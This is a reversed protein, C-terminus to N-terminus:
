RDAEERYFDTLAAAFIEPRETTLEHGCDPAVLLRADPLSRALQWAQDVPVFPDRDGCAVMAPVEIRRLDVPTLLPQDAVDAAIAPLLRRWADEGQGPDHRAALEFAWTPEDRAIREPDMLRRAVGARPERATSIGVVVLTELRAPYLAGFQLATMAGMSFGLLDFTAIALGDVFALLDAVMDATTFGDRVDWTTAGHGRADPLYVRFTNALRDLHPGLHSARSVTAGHLVVLPPGQGVADYGIELGNATITPM